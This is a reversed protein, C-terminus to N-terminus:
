PTGGATSRTASVTVRTGDALGAASSVVVLEGADLGALIEAGAASSPGAQILRLRTVGDQVVYV